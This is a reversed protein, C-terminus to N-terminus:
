IYKSIFEVLRKEVEKRDGMGSVKKYPYKAKFFKVVAAVNKRYYAVRNKLAVKTDDPRKSFKGKFYEVRNGMRKVTESM